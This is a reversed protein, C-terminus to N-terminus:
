EEEVELLSARKPINDQPYYELMEEPTKKRLKSLSTIRSTYLIGDLHDIEHQFAQAIVGSAKMRLKKGQRDRAKVTVRHARRPNGRYERLSLCGEDPEYQGRTKVIEPNVLVILTEDADVVAIRLSVGIQPAALGRGNAAKLTDILDDVLTQFSDGFQTVPKTKQHLIPNTSDLIPKVAM